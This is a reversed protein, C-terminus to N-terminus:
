DRGFATGAEELTPPVWQRAPHSAREKQQVYSAENRSVELFSKMIHPEKEWHFQHCIRQRRSAPATRLLREEKVAM